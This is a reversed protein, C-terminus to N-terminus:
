LEIRSKQNLSNLIERDNQNLDQYHQLCWAVDQRAQNLSDSDEIINAYKFTPLGSQQRGLVDGMGRIKLDAKSIQFGNSEDVMIKLRAKGQDTTPNGILYCFSPQNGRGVRGRLQHLQALGFREASQIIMMTANPVDVGVEVMTTAVLVQAENAKFAAMTRAQQDKAMQGHLIEIQYDPFVQDLKAKVNLVNEVQDLHESQDIIPLVYYIQQEKALIEQMHLYLKDVQKESVLRTQIPQRGSPLSQITSVSMDGYISLALSRPIPTATMQLINLGPNQDLLLQRQDVGFRHQEDIVLLGLKHFSVADQILAHTGIIVQHFGKKIGLQLENKEKSSIQSILLGTQDELDPFLNCFNQYHQKALIETPVMLAVQYGGIVGAVMALFAVITKGSGVDGQLMRRMAYPALLDLCIENVAKKQDSTLEFPLEKIFDKLVEVDYYVQLGKDQRHNFSATQLQWQYDFFEQYIIKRRAAEYQKYSQPQHIGQLAARSSMLQHRENLFSPVAEPILPGYEALAQSIAQVILSQRLGKTASYVPQFINDTKKLVKMGMLTQRTQDWKGYISKEDSLAVQKNLYPQNFFVVQIVQHDELELRFSLRSRRQGFYSVVPPTIVRGKLTVKEQDLISALPREQIDNFRFPLHYLLDAITVVGLQAFAQVSKPGIGKLVAISDNLTTPM